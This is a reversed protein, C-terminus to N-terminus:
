IAGLVLARPRLAGPAASLLTSAPEMRGAVVGRARPRAGGRLVHAGHAARSYGSGYGQHLLSIQVIAHPVSM